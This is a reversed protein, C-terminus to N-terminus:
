WMALFYADLRDLYRDVASRYVRAQRELIEPATGTTTETKDTRGYVTEGKSTGSDSAEGTTSSTDEDSWEKTRGSLYPTSTSVVSEPMTETQSYKAGESVTDESRSSSESSTSGSTSDKGGATSMVTSDVASPDKPLVESLRYIYDGWEVWAAGAARALDELWEEGDVGGVMRRGFRREAQTLLRNRPDGQLSVEGFVEEWQAMADVGRAEALADWTMVDYLTMVDASGHHHRRDSGVREGRGRQERDRLDVDEDEDAGDGDGAGGGEGQPGQGGRLGVDINWGMDHDECWETALEAWARRRELGQAIISDLPQNLAQTEETSQGSEKDTAFGALGLLNLILSDCARITSLLPGTWDQVKLDLVQMSSGVQSISSIWREWGDELASKLVVGQLQAGPQIGSIVVPQQMGAITSRLAGLSQSSIRVLEDVESATPVGFWLVPSDQEVMLDQPPETTDGIAPLWTLPQSYVDVKVPTAGCLVPMGSMSGVAAGGWRYLCHEVWGEPVREAGDGEVDWDYVGSLVAEYHRHLAAAYSSAGMRARMGKTTVFTPRPAAEEPM